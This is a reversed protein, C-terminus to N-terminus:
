RCGNVPVLWCVSESTLQFQPGVLSCFYSNLTNLIMGLPLLKKAVNHYEEEEGLEKSPPAESVCNQPNRVQVTLLVQM